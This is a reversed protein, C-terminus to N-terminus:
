HKTKNNKLNKTLVMVVMIFALGISTVYAVFYILSFLDSVFSPYLSLTTTLFALIGYFTWYKKLSEFSFNEKRKENARASKKRKNYAGIKKSEKSRSLM